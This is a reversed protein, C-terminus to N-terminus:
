LKEKENLSFELFSYKQNEEGSEERIQLFLTLLRGVIWVAALILDEDCGRRGGQHALFGDTGFLQARACVAGESERREFLAVDLFPQTGCLTPGTNM